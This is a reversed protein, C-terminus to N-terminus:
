SSGISRNAFRELEGRTREVVRQLDAVLQEDVPKGAAHFAQLATESTALLITLMSVHQQSGDDM